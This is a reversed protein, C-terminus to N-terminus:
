DDRLATTKCIPCLNKHMLWQKICGSHFEHGCDLAGLDDGEGYEEQCVCCPEVDMEAGAANCLYKRQKLRKSITEESLGTSVNGIREELALLEEYSMNDVDLRMDRHRDHADAVGFFVSQDLIMVDEFGLGERRRVLDLVNRIESVLRSRGESGASFNRLSHPFGLVSDGQSDLWLASRSHSQHHGQSGAGSPLLMEPSPAPDSHLPSHNSGQGGSDSGVSSFLSRRVFESLRRPYQSSPNRHPVRNSASSPHAAGSNSGTRSTSAVNGPISINGSALNWNTPNQASNRLDAAPIFMPHESINRPLSRSNSEERLSADRVGSIVSNSSNGSRSSSAGNWRFSHVNRPMPPVRVVFSQNQSSTSDTTQALGLDPSHNVPLLRLSQGPSSVNFHGVSSGRSFLNPPLSDQQHSPNVRMRFNRQSSEASGAETLSPVNDSPGGAAGIGLRPNVQEFPGVGLFNDSPTSITLSGGANNHAPVAHWISSEAHQFSSSGDMSSQGVSGDLAKRKCSLRRGDLSCGPRGDNEEVLYGATRSHAGFPDSSSSTSPIQENISSGSKYSNPCEVVQCNDGGHAVFRANININHTIPDSSSSQLLLPGNAIQNTSFNVNVNDMSLLNTTECRQEELRPGAGASAILSSSLGHEMKHEDRSMENQASSSSPQGLSWRGLNQGEHRIANLYTVNTDGHPLIYDPLRNESPNRLNNWCIQQEIGTNSSTSGHDFDLTEPLSSITGRQGQMLTIKYERIFFTRTRFLNGSYVTHWACCSKQFGTEWYAGYFCDM